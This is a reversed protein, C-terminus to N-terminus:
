HSDPKLRAFEKYISSHKSESKEPFDTRYHAGRSEERKLGTILIAQAIDLMNKLEFANYLAMNFHKSDNGINIQNAKKYLNKICSLGKSLSEKNRFIGASLLMETKMENKIEYQNESGENMLNKVEALIEIRKSTKISKPQVSKAYEAAMEGAKKGFVVTEMLSNGGLRNGGHIGVCACEGCAFLGKIETECKYNTSIGGMFYHAGPKVPIPKKICDIGAFDLALKHIQALKGLIVDEGLHRLDLLVAGDVGRGEEIETEIARAVIDRPALEDTFRKGDKNILYAGEGRTGESILLAKNHLTTPHFQVFEIDKLACGARYALAMGDGTSIAANVNNKYIQGAGGTALIISKAQIEHLEGTKMEFANLGKLKGDEVILSHVYWENLFDINHRMCETFLTTILNHGTYDRSYCTRVETQGGFARQAVSGDDNRSYIMGMEELEEIAKPAQECFFKVAKKDSLNDGGKITDEIHAEISGQTAANMGGQAMCTQSRLPHVKSVVCVSLDTSKISELAAKLGAGGGGIIVIDYNINSM